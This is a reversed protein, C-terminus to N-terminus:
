RTAAYRFSQWKPGASYDPRVDLIHAGANQLEAEVKVRAVGYMELPYPWRCIRSWITGARMLLWRSTPQSPLQFLLLGGPRLLRVFERVYALAADPPNHQLVINSYIFDFSACPFAALNAETNLVFRCREGHTNFRQALDLMAPAIDVGTVTDFHGALAQTIRGAGCGFDLADRRGDPYGLTAAYQMIVAVEAMGTSFFEEPKWGGHRKAPDALIAWFPDERGLWQWRKQQASLKTRQDM